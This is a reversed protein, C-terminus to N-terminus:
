ALLGHEHVFFQVITEAKADTIGFEIKLRAKSANARRKTSGKPPWHARAWAQLEDDSLSGVECVRSALRKSVRTFLVYDDFSLLAESNPAVLRQYEPSAKCDRRLQELKRDDAGSGKAAPRAGHALRNRLARYHNYVQYELSQELTRRDTSAIELKRIIFDLLTEQNIRSERSGLRPHEAIYNDLFVEFAQTVAILQLESNRRAFRGLDVSDVRVNHDKSLRQITSKPDGANACIRLFERVAIEQCEACADIEGLEQKLRLYCPLRTPVSMGKGITGAAGWARPPEDANRVSPTPPNPPLLLENAM